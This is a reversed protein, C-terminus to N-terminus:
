SPLGDCGERHLCKGAETHLRYSTQAESHSLRLKKYYIIKHNQDNLPNAVFVLLYVSLWPLLGCANTKYRFCITHTLTTKFKRSWTATLTMKCYTSIFNALDLAYLLGAEQSASLRKHPRDTQHFELTIQRGECCRAVHFCGSSSLDLGSRM